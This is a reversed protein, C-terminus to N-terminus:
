SSRDSSVGPREISPSGAAPIARRALSECCRLFQASQCVLPTPPVNLSSFAFMDRAIVEEEARRM